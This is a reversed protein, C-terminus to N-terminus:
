KEQPMVNGLMREIILPHEKAVIDFADEVSIYEIGQKEMRTDKRGFFILNTNSASYKQLQEMKERLKGTSKGQTVQAIINVGDSRIGFIDIDPLSKGIPLLLGYLGREMRLYEYCVIELQSPALSRVNTPIPTDNFIATLYKKASPWGTVTGRPRIAMLLPYDIMSVEKVNKLQIVKYFRGNREKVKIVSGKEIAGVLMDRRRISMFAAGVIVGTKCYDQLRTLATKGSGTYDDPNASENEGGFDDGFDVAIMRKEWFEELIQPTADMKHRIFVTKM